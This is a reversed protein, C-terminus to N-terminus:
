LTTTRCLRCTKAPISTYLHGRRDWRIGGQVVGVPQYKHADQLCQQTVPCHTLCIHRATAIDARLESSWLDPDMDPQHCRAADWWGHDVRPECTATNVDDGSRHTHTLM